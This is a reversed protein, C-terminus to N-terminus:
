YFSFYGDAQMDHEKREKRSYIPNFSNQPCGQRNWATKLDHSISKHCVTGTQALPSTLLLWLLNGTVFFCSNDRLSLSNIANFQGM